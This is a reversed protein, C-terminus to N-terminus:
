LGIEYRFVTTASVTDGCGFTLGLSGLCGPLVDTKPVCVTVRVYKDPPPSTLTDSPGCDCAGSTPSSLVVQSGGANHELRVRCYHMQSNRLQRDIVDLINDPVAGAAPLSATQSAEEAGVRAALAIQQTRAFYFGFQMIALMLMLFIPLVLVLELIIRGRRGRRGADRARARSRRQALCLTTTM